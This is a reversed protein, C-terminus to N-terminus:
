VCERVRLIGEAVDLDEFTTIKINDRSGNEIYVPIGLQQVLFADDTARINKEIANEHARLIVDYRFAQPTQMAWMDLRDVNEVIVGDKVRKLTDSVRVALTAAGRRNALKVVADISEVQVCPRAADHIAIVSAGGAERLGNCVSDQRREGGPIVKKLKEIAFEKAIDSVLLINEEKTVVIIEDIQRSKQMAILSYAITPIGAIDLFAKNKKMNMRVGSGAAVIIAVNREERKKKFINFM